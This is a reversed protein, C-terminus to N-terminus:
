KQRLKNIDGLCFCYIITEEYKYTKHTQKM